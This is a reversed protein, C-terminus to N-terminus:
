ADAHTGLHLMPGRLDFVVFVAKFFFDGYVQIGSGHNSQIGGFCIKAGTSRDTGAVAFTAQYGPIRAFHAEGVSVFLDPLTTDCPYVYGGARGSYSAGEVEKYYAQVVESNVLMLTTGTDVIATETGNEVKKITTTDKVAYLNSEIEWFGRSSDVPVKVLENRFKKKDILGFEYSGVEGHKLQATLVPEDLDPGINEFFSPQPKPKMTSLKTFALGVLGDSASDQLFSDAVKNPVGFAQKEVVVGGIDVADIAVDGSAYSGDGYTINFTVGNFKSYSMSKKPDFLTHVGTSSSDLETNFVWTDASGTDFNMVFRQGGITVPSLFQIDNHTPSSPVDGNKEEAAKSVGLRAAAATTGPIFDIDLNDLNAESPIIGYKAYARTLAATGDLIEEGRRVRNVKFSGIRRRIPTPSSAVLLSFSLITLLAWFSVPSRM